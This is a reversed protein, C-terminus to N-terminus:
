KNVKRATVYAAGALVSVTTFIALGADGTNAIDEGDAEVPINNLAALPTVDSQEVLIDTVVDVEDEAEETLAGIVPNIIEDSGGILEEAKEKISDVIDDAKVNKDDLVKEIDSSTIEEGSSKSNILDILKQIVDTGALDDKDIGVLDLVGNIEPETAAEDGKVTNFVNLVDKLKNVLGKVNQVTSLLAGLDLESEIGLADKVKGLTNDIGGYSVTDSLDIDDYAVSSEGFIYPYFLKAAADCGAETLHAGDRNYSPTYVGDEEVTTGKFMAEPDGGQLGLSARVSADSLADFDIVADVYGNDDWTKLEDNIINRLEKLTYGDYNADWDIDPGTGMDRVYEDAPSRTVMIVHIGKAKAADILEKYGDLLQMCYNYFNFTDWDDYDDHKSQCARHAIDNVGIKILITDVGPQDIADRYFRVAAREGFLTGVIGVPDALVENGKIAQLLIGTDKIGNAKAMAALKPTITNTLTSDGFLVVSRGNPNYVDVGALCPIIEFAGVSIDEIAFDISAPTVLDETKNGISVYSHGGILGVTSFTNINEYYVSVVLDECQGVTLDIPDTYVEQGAPITFSTAGNVTAKKMTSLQVGRELSDNGLAVTVEGISMPSKGFLNSLRLRITDGGTTMQIRTRATVSTLPLSISNESLSVAAKVMSTSWAGIFGDDNSSVNSSAIAVDATDLAGKALEVITSLANNTNGEVVSGLDLSGTIASLIDEISSSSETSNTVSNILDTLDSTDIAGANEAADKVAGIISDADVDTISSALADDEVDAKAIDKVVDIVTSVDVGGLLNSVDDKSLESGLLASVANVANTVESSATSTIVFTSVALALVLVLAIVKVFNKRM